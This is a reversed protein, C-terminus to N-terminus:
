RKDSRKRKRRSVLSGIGEQPAVYDNVKGRALRRKAYHSNLNVIIGMLAYVCRLQRAVDVVHQNTFSSDNQLAITCTIQVTTADMLMHSQHIRPQGIGTRVPICHTHMKHQKGTNSIGSRRASVPSWTIICKSDSESIDNLHSWMRCLREKYKGGEVSCPISLPLGATGKRGEYRFKGGVLDAKNAEGLHQGNTRRVEDLDQLRMHLADHRDLLVVSYNQVNSPEIIVLDSDARHLAYEWKGHPIVRSLLTKSKEEGGCQKEISGDGFNGYLNVLDGWNVENVCTVHLAHPITDRHFVLQRSLKTFYQSYISWDLPPVQETSTQRWSHKFAVLLRKASSHIEDKMTAIITDTLRTCSDGNSVVFQNLLEKTSMNPSHGVDSLWEQASCQQVRLRPSLVVKILLYDRRLQRFWNVLHKAIDLSDRANTLIDLEGPDSASQMYGQKLVGVASGYVNQTVIRQQCKGLHDHHSYSTNLSLMNKQVTYSLTKRFINDANRISVNARIIVAFPVVYAMGHQVPWVLMVGDMAASNAVIEAIGADTTDQIAHVYKPVEWLCFIDGLEDPFQQKKALSGILAGGDDASGGRILHALVYIPSGDIYAKAELVELNLALPKETQSLQSVPTQSCQM